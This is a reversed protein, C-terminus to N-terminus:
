NKTSRSPRCHLLSLVVWSVCPVRPATTARIIGAFAAHNWLTMREIRTPNLKKKGARGRARILIGIHVYTYVIALSTYVRHTSYILLLIDDTTDHIRLSAVYTDM